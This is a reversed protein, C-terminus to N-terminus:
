KPTFTKMDAQAVLGGIIYNEKSMCYYKHLVKLKQDGQSIKVKIFIVM